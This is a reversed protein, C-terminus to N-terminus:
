EKLIFASPKLSGDIRRIGFHDEYNPSTGDNLQYVTYSQVIGSLHHFAMDDRLFNAVDIDNFQVSKFCSVKSKCTHWGCETNWLKSLPSLSSLKKIEEVISSDPAKTTRYPHFGINPFQSLGIAGKLWKLADKSLSSIGGTIMQDGFWRLGDEWAMRAAGASAQFRGSDWENGVEIMAPYNGVLAKVEPMWEVTIPPSANLLLILDLDYKSHERLITPIEEMDQVDRRLGNYGLSKILALTDDDVPVDFVNLYTKM